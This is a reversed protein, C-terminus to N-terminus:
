YEQVVFLVGKAEGEVWCVFVISRLFFLAGSPILVLGCCWLILLLRLSSKADDEGVETRLFAELLLRTLLWPLAPCEGCRLCARLRWCDEDPRRFELSVTIALGREAFESSAM